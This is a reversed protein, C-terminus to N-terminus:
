ARKGFVISGSRVGRVFEIPLYTQESIEEDSIGTQAIRLIVHIMSEGVEILHGDPDYFRVTQQQWPTTEIPHLLPVSMRTITEFFGEMDDTEFYLENTPYEQPPSPDSGSYLLTKARSAEWLSIGGIFTVLAGIDLEIELSFLDQYFSKSKHIDRCLLVVSSYQIM